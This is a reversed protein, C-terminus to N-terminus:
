NEMGSYTEHLKQILKKFLILFEDKLTQYEPWLKKIQIILQERNYGLFDKGKIAFNLKTQM